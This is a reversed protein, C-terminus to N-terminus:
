RGCRGKEGVFVTSSQSQFTAKDLRSDHPGFRIKIYAQRNRDGTDRDRNPKDVNILREDIFPAPSLTIDGRDRSIIEGVSKM